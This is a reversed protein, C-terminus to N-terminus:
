VAQRRNRGPVAPRRRPRARIGPHPIRQARHVLSRGPQQDDRKGAPCDVFMM